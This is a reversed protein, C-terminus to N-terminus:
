FQQEHEILAVVRNWPVPGQHMAFVTDVKLNASQVAQLVEFTLEPNYLRGDDSLVLTDSAYLLRSRPFYVLYQRETSAGRLPYLEIRNEGSGIELKGSVIKWLPRIPAKSKALEDPNLSHPATVMNDLLPRNLDLIYIPLREAVAFRVGGVHPWSDSTSLVAKVPLGPYRKRAEEVVGQLYQESIPAELIVIGDSQKILTTNWAGEFLDIGQALKTDAGEHFTRNWGPSAASQRAVTADMAFTTEDIPVNFEVNLAQVSNWLIDNRETVLNTPYLIGQVLKWNDFYIRQQVDGWFHWFDRFEQTTEIADPLHNFPNLLLRVPTRQWTFGLVVHQTSRLFESAEFHLDTAESATLLLREPWLALMERASDIRSIRCPSDGNKTRTVGGDPSAVTTESIESQNPDSEPWTLHAETMVRQKVLELMVRDREYATLFPAQRYSQETLITHGILELRMTKIQRLREAGGMADLARHLCQQPSAKECGPNDAANPLALASASIWVPAAALLSLWTKRM